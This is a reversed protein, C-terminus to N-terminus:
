RWFSLRNTRKLSLTYLTRDSRGHYPTYRSTDEQKKYEARRQHTSLEVDEVLEKTAMLMMMLLVLLLVLLTSTYFPKFLMVISTVEKTDQTSVKLQRHVTSIGRNRLRHQLVRLSGMDMQGPYIRGQCTPLNHRHSDVSHFSHIHHRQEIDCPHHM